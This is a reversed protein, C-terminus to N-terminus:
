AKTACVAYVTYTSDTTGANAVTTTWGGGDANPYTDVIFVNTPDDVKAGGGVAVKGASCLATGVSLNSATVTQPASAV